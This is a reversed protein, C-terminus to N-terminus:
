KGLEKTIEERVHRSWKLIASEFDQWVQPGSNYVTGLADVSLCVESM